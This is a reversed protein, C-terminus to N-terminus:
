LPAQGCTQLAQHQLAMTEAEGESPVTEKKHAPSEFCIRPGWGGGSEWRHHPAQVPSGEEQLEPRLAQPTGWFVHSHALEPWQCHATCQVLLVGVQCGPLSALRLSLSPRQLPRAM